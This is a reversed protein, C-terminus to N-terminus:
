NWLDTAVGDPRDTVDHWRDGRWVQWFAGPTTGEREVAWRLEAACEPLALRAAVRMEQDAFPGGAPKDDDGYVFTQLRLLAHGAKAAKALRRPTEFETILDDLVHEGSPTSGEDTRCRAAYAEIDNRDVYGSERPHRAPHFRTEGGTGENEITGIITKGHRLTAEYGVGHRTKYERLSTVRYDTHPVHLGTHPLRILDSM